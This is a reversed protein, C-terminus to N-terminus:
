SSMPLPNSACEAAATDDVVGDLGIGVGRDVFGGGCIFITKTSSGSSSYISITRGLFQDLTCRGRLEKKRRRGGDYRLMGGGEGDYRLMTEKNACVHVSLKTVTVVKSRKKKRKSKRNKFIKKTHM